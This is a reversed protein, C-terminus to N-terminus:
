GLRGRLSEDTHLAVAATTGLRERQIEATGVRMVRIRKGVRQHPQDGGRHPEAPRQTQAAVLGAVRHLLRHHQGPAVAVLQASRDL